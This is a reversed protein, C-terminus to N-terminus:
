EEDRGAEDVLFDTLVHAAGGNLFVVRDTM